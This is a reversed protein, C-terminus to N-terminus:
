ADRKVAARTGAVLLAVGAIGLVLLAPLWGGGGSGAMGGTGTNPPKIAPQQAPQQAPAAAKDSVVITGTMGQNAHLLCAYTYTGAKTFTLSYSSGGPVQGTKDM